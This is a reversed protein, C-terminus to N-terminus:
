GSEGSADSEGPSVRRYRGTALPPPGAPRGTRGPPTRATVRAQRAGNLGRRRGLPDARRHLRDPDFPDPWWSSYGTVMVTGPNQRDVTSGSFGFWRDGGAPVPSVDTWTGTATDLRRM